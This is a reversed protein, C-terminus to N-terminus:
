RSELLSIRDRIKACLEYNEKKIAGEMIITLFSINWIKNLNNEIAIDMTQGSNHPLDVYSNIAVDKKNHDYYDLSTSPNIQLLIDQIKVDKEDADLRMFKDYEIREKELADCKEKAYSNCLQKFEEPLYKFNLKITIFLDTKNLDAKNIALANKKPTAILYCHTVENIFGLKKFYEPETDKKNAIYKKLKEQENLLINYDVTVSREKGNNPFIKNYNIKENVLNVYEIVLYYHLRKLDKINKIKNTDIAEEKIKEFIMKIKKFQSLEKARKFNIKKILRM